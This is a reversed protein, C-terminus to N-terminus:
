LSVSTPPLEVVVSVHVGPRGFMTSLALESLKLPTATPWACVFVTVIVLLPVTGSVYLRESLGPVGCIANPAAQVEPQEICAGGAALVAVNSTTKVGLVGPPTDARISIM